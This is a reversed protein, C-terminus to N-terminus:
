SNEPGALAHAIIAQSVQTSDSTYRGSRYLAALQNVRAAQGANHATNADRIVQSLSSIELHDTGRSSGGSGAVGSQGGASSTEETPRTPAAGGTVTDNQIRISM